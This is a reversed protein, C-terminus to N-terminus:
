KTAPVKAKLEEFWNLVLNIHTVAPPTQPTQDTVAYFRQGDPAVDYRRVPSGRLPLDREAFEFLLRPRGIRPPSGPAFEVAMMRIMGAQDTLSLFFLERMTPNWAPCWGGELSVPEAPGPAPYPRVYVEFRGSADSAYALWRGDASFVPYAASRPPAQALFPTPAEGGGAPVMVIDRGRVAALRQGEPTFSSPVLGSSLERMPTVADAPQIAVSYRGEAVWDFVLRQGDPSWLCFLADGGGALLKLTGRGMDYIWVGAETLTQVTVVLQRGEPSVRVVPGYSRVPAGALRSVRGLRDVSVLLRDPYSAPPAAVWALTGTMAVAFQGAGTIDNLSGGTLAQAVGDLIAVPSGRAELRGADFPVAFLQGRRLFVLHGTPLCRADAADKLVVRREGTALSQAVVEEDGWSWRRKRVTYLLAQGEPLPWPLGHKEAEVPTTVATPAGEAPIAWIRGDTENGFYLRGSGDWTLGRPPRFLGSLDMVPGGDLRVKRIAGNAWFAVWQGDASVAPVQAGETGAIPRADAADLRRMFLQQVGGLRGVFVLAQGDPTWTLATRSGGPTPLFVPLVGGANVAEAPRVPLETRVLSARSPSPGLLWMVGAGAGGAVVVLGAVLLAMRLHWRQPRRADTAATAGSSQRIWRFDNAVDHATDPRDGPSKALCQRVLRDLLPPTLPQLTALTEGPLHEMVLYTSGNHDGVDYLTCINPHTLGAITKAEREFRARREPDASLEAPLIKIAVTRDLRTDRAKYVEGMGGEGLKAQIEYPGLMTGILM